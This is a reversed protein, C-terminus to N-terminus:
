HLLTKRFLRMLDARSLLGIVHRDKDTVILRKIRNRDMLEIATQLTDDAKITVPDRTMIDDVVSGMRKKARSRRIIVDFMEKLAREGNIDLASLFDAETIIGVLRRDPDLVPLGSIRHETLLSAADPLRTGLMVSVINKSMVDSVSIVRSRQIQPVTALEKGLFSMHAPLLPVNGLYGPLLMNWYVWKFALKGLHNIHSEGLLSFPGMGPMPFDGSLPEMDYNFDILLAKHFGSEIFCNTHGDFSPLAPKGDIERLVNEVVTEAEFHAVSGAKSTSVNSNDGILFIYDAKRSKLTRPHTLAYGTGDGLGSEDLAQPGINPPIICLLDYELSTGDFSVIRKNDSDVSELAFNTVININKNRAIETLVRSANPKTFASDLPTVLDIKVRDRIGRLQFYYDALFAFEIPSVPCKIPMDAIDIVLRGETMKAIAKQFDLAGDLTYFTHVDNGMSDALGEVEDPAIHCGMASILWDYHIDGNGTVVMKNHHDILKVDANVFDINSPLPDSIPRTLDQRNRYDYLQFPIFILGPQYVHQLSRDIIKISWQNVALKRRLMNAVLVGGTGAGLIVITKM